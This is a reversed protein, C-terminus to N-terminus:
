RIVARIAQALRDGLAQWPAQGDYKLLYLAGDKSHAKVALMGVSNVEALLYYTWDPMVVEYVQSLGLIGVNGVELGETQEMLELYDRPLAATIGEVAMRRRDSALPEYLDRVEFAKEFERLWAPLTITARAVPKSAVPAVPLSPDRVILAQKIEVENDDRISPPKPTFVAAGLHGGILFFDSVWIGPQNRISFRVSAFKLEADKAAFEPARLGKGRKRRYIVEGGGSDRQTRSLDQMQKRLLSASEESLAGLVESLM